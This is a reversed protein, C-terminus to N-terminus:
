IVKVNGPVLSVFFRRNRQVVAFVSHFGNRVLNFAVQVQQTRCCNFIPQLVAHWLGDRIQLQRPNLHPNRRPVLKLSCYTLQNEDSTTRNSHRKQRSAHIHPPYATTFINTHHRTTQPNLNENPIRSCDNVGNRGGNETGSVSESAYFIAAIPYLVFRMACCDFRM